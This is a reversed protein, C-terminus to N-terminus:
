PSVANDFFLAADKAVIKRDYHNNIRQVISKQDEQRYGVIGWPIATQPDGAWMFHNANTVVDLGPPSVIALLASEQDWLYKMNADPPNDPTTVGEAADTQVTDLVVLEELEWIGKVLDPTLLGPQVYKYRDIIDKHHKLTRWVKRGVFFKNPKMGTNRKIHDIGEEIENIPDGSSADWKVTPTVDKAWVGTKFLANSTDLELEMQFNNVLYMLDKAALPMATQSKAALTDDLIKELGYEEVEYTASEVGYGVRNFRGEVGRNSGPSKRFWYGKPYVFYTGTPEDVPMIPCIKDWAFMKNKYGISLRTLVPDVPRVKYLSPQAM